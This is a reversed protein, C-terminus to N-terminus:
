GKVMTSKQSVVLKLYQFKNNGDVPYEAVFNDLHM